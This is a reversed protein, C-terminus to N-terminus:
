LLFFCNVVSISKLSSRGWLLYSCKGAKGLGWHAECSVSLGEQSVGVANATMFIGQSDQGVRLLCMATGVALKACMTSDQIVSSPSM